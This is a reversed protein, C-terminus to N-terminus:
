WTGILRIQTGSTAVWLQGNILEAALAGTIAGVGDALLDDWGFHNHREFEDKVEWALGPVLALGFSTLTREMPGMQKAVKYTVTGIVLGYGASTGFHAITDPELAYASSSIFQSMLLILTILRQM